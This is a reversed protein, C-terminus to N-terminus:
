NEKPTFTAFGDPSTDGVRVDTDLVWVDTDGEDSNPVDIIFRKTVDGGENYLAFTYRTLNNDPEPTVEAFINMHFSM